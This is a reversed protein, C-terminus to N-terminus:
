PNGSAKRIVSQVLLSLKEGQTQIDVIGPRGTPQIDQPAARESQQQAEELATAVRAGFDQIRWLRARSKYRGVNLEEVSVLKARELKRLMKTATSWNRIGLAEMVDKTM